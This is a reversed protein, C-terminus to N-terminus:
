NYNNQINLQHLEANVAIKILIMMYKSRYKKLKKIV